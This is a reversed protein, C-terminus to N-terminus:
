TKLITTIYDIVMTLLETIDKHLFVKDPLKENVCTQKITVMYENNKMAFHLNIEDENYCRIQGVFANIVKQEKKSMPIIKGEGSAISKVILDNYIGFDQYHHYQFGLHQQNVKYGNEHVCGAEKEYYLDMISRFIKYNGITVDMSDSRLQNTLSMILLNHNHETIYYPEDGQIQVKVTYDDCGITNSKYMFSLNIKEGKKYSKFIDAKKPNKQKAKM